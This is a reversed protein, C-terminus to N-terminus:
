LPEPVRSVCRRPREHRQRLSDVVLPAVAVIPVPVPVRPLVLLVLVLRFHSWPREPTAAHCAAARALAARHALRRRPPLVRSLAVPAIARASPRRCGGGCGRREGGAARSARRPGPRCAARRRRRLPQAPLAARLRRSIDVGLVAAEVTRGARARRGRWGGGGRRGTGARPVADRLACARGGGGAGTVHPAGGCTKGAPLRVAGRGRAVRAGRPGANRGQLWKRERERVLRKVRIHVKSGNPQRWRRRGARRLRARLIRHRPM